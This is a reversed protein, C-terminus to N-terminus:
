RGDPNRKATLRRVVEFMGAAFGLAGLILALVPSTGLRRDLLYGGGAGLVVAGVLVFPLDLASALQSLFPGSGPPRPSNPRPKEAAL